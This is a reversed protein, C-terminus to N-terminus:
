KIGITQRQVFAGEVKITRGRPKSGQSPHLLMDVAIQGMEYNPLLVSSLPPHTHRAIEQDDYGIVSIPSPVDLGLSKIANICGIAMLDNACFIASPPDDLGMLQRTCEYASAMHWDAERVLAPDFCLDASVLARRYGKLRDKAADMWPEGNIFGIRTHGAKILQETAIIGGLVESPIISLNGGNGANATYCNLLVLPTNQLKAPLEIQRTFITSYIIGVLLPNGLFSDLIAAELDANTRTTMVVVLVGNKWAEDKAGDVSLVPHPSTSIEDVLYLIFPRGLTPPSRDNAGAHHSKRYVPLTYGLQQVCSLIKLRTKESIKAGTMGNLVFSVSSQSVGALTAVDTMTPRRGPLRKDRTESKMNTNVLYFFM